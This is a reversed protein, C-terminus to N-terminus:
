TAIGLRTLAKQAPEFDPKLRLSERYSNIADGQHGLQELVFGKVFWCVPRDPNIVLSQDYLRLAEEYRQTLRCVEGLNHLVNCLSAQNETARLMPVAQELFNEAKAYERLALYTSGIGGLIIAESGQDKRIRAIELQVTQLTLLDQHRRQISLVPVVQTIQESLSILERTVEEKEEPTSSKRYFGLMIKGQALLWAIKEEM